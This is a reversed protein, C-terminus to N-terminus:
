IQQKIYTSVSFALDRIVSLEAISLESSESTEPEPWFVRVNHEYIYKLIAPFDGTDFGAIYVPIIPVRAEIATEIEYHCWTSRTFADSIIAVTVYSSYVAARCVDMTCQGPLFNKDYLVTLLKKNWRPFSEQLQKQLPDYLKNLVFDRDVHSYALFAAFHPDRDDTKFLSENLGIYYINDIATTNTNSVVTEEERAM